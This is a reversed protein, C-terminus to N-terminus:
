CECECDTGDGDADEDVVNLFIQVELEPAGDDIVDDGVVVDIVLSIVMNVQCVEDLPIEDDVNEDDGDVDVIVEVHVLDDLLIDDGSVESVDNMESPTVKAKVVDDLDDGDVSEHGVDLPVVVKSSAIVIRSHEADLRVDVDQSDVNVDIVDDIEVKVVVEGGNM